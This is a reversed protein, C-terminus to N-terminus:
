EGRRFRRRERRYRVDAALRSRPSSVVGQRGSTPTTPWITAVISLGHAFDGVLGPALGYSGLWAPQSRGPLTGDIPTPMPVERYGPGRPNPDTCLHRVFRLAFPANNASSTMFRITAGPKASWRDCYGTLQHM